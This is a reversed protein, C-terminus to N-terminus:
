AFTTELGRARALPSETSASGSNKRYSHTVSTKQLITMKGLARGGRAKFMREWMRLGMETLIHVKSALLFVLKAM